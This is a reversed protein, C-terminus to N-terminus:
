VGIGDDYLRELDGGVWWLRSLVQSDGNDRIDSLGNLRPPYFNTAYTGPQSSPEPPHM